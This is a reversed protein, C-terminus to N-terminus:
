ICIGRVVGRHEPITPAASVLIITGKRVDGAVCIETTRGDSSGAPAPPLIQDSDRDHSLHSIIQPTIERGRM